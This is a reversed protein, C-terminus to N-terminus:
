GHLSWSGDTARSALGAAELVELIARARGPSIYAAVALEELNAASRSHGTAMGEAPGPSYSLVRLLALVDGLVSAAGIYAGLALGLAGVLGVLLLISGDM